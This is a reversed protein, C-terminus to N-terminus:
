MKRYPVPIQALKVVEDNVSLHWPIDNAIARGTLQYDIGMGIM